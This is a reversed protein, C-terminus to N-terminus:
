WDASRFFLLVLGKSEMLSALSQQKGFQDLVHFDPALKGADIGPMQALPLSSLLLLLFLQAVISRWGIVM